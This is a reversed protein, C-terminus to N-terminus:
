NSSLFAHILGSGHFDFRDVLQNNDPLACSPGGGDAVASVGGM